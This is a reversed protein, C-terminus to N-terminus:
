LVYVDTAPVPFPEGTTGLVYVVPLGPILCHVEYVGQEGIIKVVDGVSLVHDFREWTNGDTDTTHHTTGTAVTHAPTANRSDEVTHFGAGTTLRSVIAYDDTSDTEVFGADSDDDPRYDGECGSTAFNARTDISGCYACEYVKGKGETEVYFTLDHSELTAFSRGSDVCYGCVHKGDIDTSNDAVNGYVECVTCPESDLPMDGLTWKGGVFLVPYNQIEGMPLSDRLCSMIKLGDYDDNAHHIMDWADGNNCDSYEHEIIDAVSSFSFEYRGMNGHEARIGWRKGEREIDRCGPAHYHNMGNSGAWAQVVNVTQITMSETERQASMLEQVSERMDVADMAVRECHLCDPNDDTATCVSEADTQSAAPVDYTQGEIRERHSGCLGETHGVYDVFVAVPTVGCGFYCEQAGDASFDPAWTNPEDGEIVVARIIIDGEWAYGYMDVENGAMEALTEVGKRTLYYHGTMLGRDHLAKRTRGHCTMVVYAGMGDGRASPNFTASMLATVMTDTLKHGNTNM